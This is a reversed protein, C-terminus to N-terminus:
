LSFDLVVPLHDSVEVERLQCSDVAIDKTFIHDIGLGSHHPEKQFLPHIGRCLTNTFWSTQQELKQRLTRIAM